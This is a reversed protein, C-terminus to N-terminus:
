QQSDQVMLRHTPQPPVHNEHTSSLNASVTLIEPLNFTSDMPPTPMPPPAQHDENVTINFVGCEQSTASQYDGVEHSVWLQLPSLRDWCCDLRNYILIQQVTSPAPLQVSLWPHDETLTHCFTNLNGDICKSPYHDDHTSSLNAHLLPLEYM